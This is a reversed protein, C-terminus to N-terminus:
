QQCRDGAQRLNLGVIGFIVVLLLPHDWQRHTLDILVAWKLEGERRVPSLGPGHSIASERRTPWEDM